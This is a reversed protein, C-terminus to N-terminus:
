TVLTIYQTFKVLLTELRKQLAADNLKGEGDFAQYANSLSFMDPYVFSGCAELPIRTAWLGRNGGVLSPSASMLMIQQGSWPASKFRSIWDILNKLTGPISFNYEPVSLILASAAKMDDIFKQAHEPLGTSAESDGDYLPLAYDNFDAVHLDIKQNQLIKSCLAILKKNISDKRGSAAMLMIKM